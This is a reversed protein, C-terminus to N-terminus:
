NVHATAHWGCLADCRGLADHLAEYACRSLNPADADDVDNREVM